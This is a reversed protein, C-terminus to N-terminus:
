IRTFFHPLMQQLKIILATNFAGDHELSPGQGASAQLCSNLKLHHKYSLTLWM